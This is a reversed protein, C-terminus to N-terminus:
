RVGGSHLARMLDILRGYREEKSASRVAAVAADVARGANQPSPPGIINSSQRLSASLGVQPQGSADRVEVASLQIVIHLPALPQGPLTAGAPPALNAPDAGEPLPNVWVAYSYKSEGNEVRACPVVTLALAMDPLTRAAGSTARASTGAADLSTEVYNPHGSM